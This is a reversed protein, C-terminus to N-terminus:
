KVIKTILSGIDGAITASVDEGITEKISDLLQNLDEEKM